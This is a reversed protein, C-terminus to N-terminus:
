FTRPFLRQSPSRRAGGTEEKSKALRSGKTEFISGAASISIVSKKCGGLDMLRLMRACCLSKRCGRKQLRIKKESSAVCCGFGQLGVHVHEPRLEYAGTAIAWRRDNTQTDAHDLM